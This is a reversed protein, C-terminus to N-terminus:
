KRLSKLARIIKKIDKNEIADILENAMFEEEASHADCSGEEHDDSDDDSKKMMPGLIIGAINANNSLM